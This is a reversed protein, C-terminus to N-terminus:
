LRESCRVYQTNVPMTVWGSHPNTFVLQDTICSVTQPHQCCSCMPNSAAPSGYPSASALGSFFLFALFLSVAFIKKM